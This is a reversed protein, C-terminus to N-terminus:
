RYTRNRNQTTIDAWRCNSPEYNGDGNIRDLTTGEPREGMDALFNEFSNWRDCVTIGRGGWDTWRPHSPNRCRQRMNQWSVYTRTEPNDGRRAHGHRTQWARAVERQLCGCSRTNGSRLSETTVERIAGCDCRCIHVRGRSSSRTYPVEVVLRGFRDGSAILPKGARDTVVLPDGHKRWRRYHRDCYGKSIVRANCDAVLCSAM